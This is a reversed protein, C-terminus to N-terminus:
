VRSGSSRQLFMNFRSDSFGRGLEPGSPRDGLGVARIRICRYLGWINYDRIM